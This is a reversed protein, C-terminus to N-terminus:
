PGQIPTVDDSRRLIRATLFIVLERDIDTTNTSRFLRGILPLKSLIPIRSHAINQTRTRLGGLVIVDNDKVNAVTTVFQSSVSPISAAPNDNDDDDDGGGSSAFTPTQSQVSVQPTLFVTITDDNQITPTVQIGIMTTLFFANQSEGVQGGIGTDSSTLVVPTQQQSVLSATLNNMTTVRPSNIIRARGSQALAQLRAQFMGRTFVLTSAGAAGPLAGLANNPVSFDDEDDADDNALLSNRNYFQLGFAKADSVSIDIFQSEIEVQRIPRDLFDIIENLQRIGEDTGYVLLVNQADISVIQDVEQNGQADTGLELMGANFGSNGGGGGGFGGGGGGGGGFLFSSRYSPELWPRTAGANMYPNNFLGNNVAYPNGFPMGVPGNGNLSSMVNPDVGPKLPYPSIALKKAQASAEMEIPMEQNKPDLWWAMLGSRVNRIKIPRIKREARERRNSLPVLGNSASGPNTYSPLTGPSGQLPAVLWNEDIPKIGGSAGGDSSASNSGANDVVKGVLYSKEGLKKWQLNATQAAKRIAEVPTVDTLRIGPIKLSAEVDSGISIDVGGQAAILMLLDIVPADRMEISIRSEQQAAAAVARSTPAPPAPVASAQTAASMEPLPAVFPVQNAGPEPTIGAMQAVGPLWLVGVGGVAACGLAWVRKSSFVRHQSSTKTSLSSRM